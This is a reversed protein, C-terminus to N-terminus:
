RETENVPPGPLLHNIIIFPLTIRSWVHKSVRDLVTISAQQMHIGECVKWPLDRLRKTQSKM